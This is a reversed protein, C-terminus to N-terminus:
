AKSFRAYAAAMKEDYRNLRYGPGNYRRAFGAWDRRQLENVLKYAKVVRCFAVLNALASKTLEAIMAEVTPYGALQHESGMIQFPGYSASKMAAQPDLAYAKRLRKWQNEGGAGYLRRNWTPSSIDPHTADFKRGTFRSFYHAEFLILLKGDALWGKGASEVSAVAALVAVDVGLMAAGKRYEDMDLKIDGQAVPEWPEPRQTPRLDGDVNFLGSYPDPESGGEANQTPLDPLKRWSRIMRSAAFDDPTLEPGAILLKSALLTPALGGGHATFKQLLAAAQRRGSAIQALTLSV